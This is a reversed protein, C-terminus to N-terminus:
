ARAGIVRATDAFNPPRHLVEAQPRHSWWDFVLLASGNQMLRDYIRPGLAEQLGAEGLNSIVVTPRMEQYRGDLVDFLQNRENETRFSVGVEDLILLDATRYRTVVQTETSASDRDWTDRIARILDLVRTYIVKHGADFLQNAIAAALHTKGTGPNGCMTLNAGTAAIGDFGDAFGKAVALARQQGPTAARYNAFTCCLARATLGAAQQRRSLRERSERERRQADEAERQAMMESECAPCRMTIERRASGTGYSMVTATYEGHTQCTAHVEREAIM